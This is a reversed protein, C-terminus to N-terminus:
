RPPEVAEAVVLRQLSTLPKSEILRWDSERLWQHVDEESCIGAGYPSGLFEMAYVPLFSSTTRSPDTWGDILLLRGGAPAAARIRRLLRAARDAPGGHLVNSLLIADHGTPIPDQDFDGEVVEVRPAVSEAALHERAVAAVSPREFLTARLHLHRRLTPILVSGTGGGLDLLRRHRGFDYAAALAYAGSATLASVGDSFIRQEEETRSRREPQGARLTGELGSWRPWHLRNWFRLAPRLDIETGGSLYAAALPCNRYSEGQREVLGLAVLANLFVSLPASPIGTHESLGGFSTPGDALREFLGLESAVFLIKASRFGNGLEIIQEPSIDSTM